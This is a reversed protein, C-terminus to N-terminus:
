YGYMFTKRQDGRRELSNAEDIFRDEDWSAIEASRRKNEWMYMVRIFILGLAGFAMIGMTIFLPTEYRPAYKSKFIQGAIVGALNSWGNVGLIVSRTGKWPTNGALWVAILPGGVFVGAMCVHTFGYRLKTDTSAAMVILGVLGICMGLVTHLSRERFHDSSYVIVLLGAVGAVFPPVSMLSATTGKYGMGAVVLPLFTTFATVPLVTTINFVVTLIKKWDKAVDIIDRKTVSTSGVDAEEQTGALDIEMRRVAHAREEPTFFWATALTKPFVFFSLIGLLVTVGGELLFVVQWGHVPGNNIKLLGYAILGAFAGAISYMGTFMGARFGVSYKPYMTSLYFMGIQTFGAEAAGILLRLAVLSGSGKVGAHAMCLGGWVILQITIFYKVGVRRALIVMVPQLIVYTVSFLSLSNPIDDPALGADKPFSSTAVFGVNTKDIGCFIFEIALLSLVIWDLKRNVRKDLAREEDTQPKYHQAQTREASQLITKIAPDRTEAAELREDSVKDSM